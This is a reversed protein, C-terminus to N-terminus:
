FGMDNIGRQLISQKVNLFLKKVLDVDTACIAHVYIPKQSDENRALYKKEVHKLAADFSKGTYDDFCTNLGVNILKERFLDVKNLFLIMSVNKFYKNNCVQQWVDLAEKMRNVSDDEPVTQNYESLSAIFLIVAATEFQHIWKKREGRQGGVDIM